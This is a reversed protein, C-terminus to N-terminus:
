DRMLRQYRLTSALDDVIKEPVSYFNYVDGSSTGENNRGRAQLQKLMDRSLVFEGGHVIALQPQGIPGLVPGGSQFGVLERRVAGGGIINGETTKVAVAINITKGKIGGLATKVRSAMEEVATGVDRSGRRGRDFDNLLKNFDKNSASAIAAFAGAAQPGLDLLSKLFDQHGGKLRQIVIQVNRNYNAEALLQKDLNKIIQASTLNSQGALDSFSNKVFNLNGSTQQEWQRIDATKTMGFIKLGATKADNGVGQLANGLAGVNPRAANFIRSLDDASLGTTELSKFLKNLADDSLGALDQGLTTASTGADKFATSVIRALDAYNGTQKDAAIASDLQAKVVGDIVDQTVGAITKLQRFAQGISISGSRLQDFVKKTKNLDSGGFPGSRWQAATIVLAKNTSLLAPVTDKLFSDATQKNAAASLEQARRIAKYSATVAVLAGALTILPGLSALLSALMARLGGAFAGTAVAAGGTATASETAAIAERQLALAEAQAAAGAGLEAGALEGQEAALGLTAAVAPEVGAVTAPGILGMAGASAAARAALGTILTTLAQIGAIVKTATFAVLLATGVYGIVPALPRLVLGLAELAGVLAIGIVAGVDKLLPLFTRVSSVISQFIPGFTQKLIGAFKYVGPIVTGIVFGALASLIPLVGRGVSEKVEDLQNHLIELRGSFSKGEAEAFGGVKERLLGMITTYDKATDGSAKFNIGITKLARTNGLFARGLATAASPLDMGTRAAYDALLPTIEKIQTGTLKFQALVAQGSAFADDDFKTKLALQSNYNRLVQISVNALAPFTKFAQDLRLQSEEARRAQDISSGIFKILGAAAFTIGVGALLQKGFNKGMAGFRGALNAESKGISSKIQSTLSSQLQALQPKIDLYAVGASVGAM